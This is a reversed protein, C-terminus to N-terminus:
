RQRFRSDHTKLSVDVKIQFKLPNSQNRLVAFEAIPNMKELIHSESFIPDNPKSPIRIPESM